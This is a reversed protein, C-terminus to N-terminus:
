KQPGHKVKGRLIKRFTLFHVGWHSALCFSLNYHSFFFGSECWLLKLLPDMRFHLLTTIKNVFHVEHSFAVLNTTDSSTGQLVYSVTGIRFNYVVFKQKYHVGLICFCFLLCFLPQCGKSNNTTPKKLCLWKM